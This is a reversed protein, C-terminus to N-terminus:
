ELRRDLDDLRAQIREAVKILGELSRAIVVLTALSGMAIVYGIVLGVFTSSSTDVVATAPPLGAVYNVFILVIGSGVLVHLGALIGAFASAVLYSM